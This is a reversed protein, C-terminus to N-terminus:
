VGRLAMVFSQDRGPVFNGASKPPVYRVIWSGDHEALTRPQCDHTSLVIEPERGEWGALLMERRIVTTLEQQWEASIAIANLSHWANDRMLGIMCHGAEVQVFCAAKGRTLKRAQNFGAMFDPQVSRLSLAHTACLSKLEALLAADIACAVVTDGDPLPNLRMAWGESAEGYVERFGHKLLAERDREAMFPRPAPLIRFRVLRNSLVVTLPMHQRSQELLQGLQRVGERWPEQTQDATGSGQWKGIVRPRLGKRVHVLTAGEPTLSAHLADTLM